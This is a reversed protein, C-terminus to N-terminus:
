NNNASTIELQVIQESAQIVKDKKPHPDINLLGMSYGFVDVVVPERKHILKIQTPEGKGNSVELKVVMQGAWICTVGIACRSDEIDILRLNINQFQIVQAFHLELTETTEEANAAPHQKISQSAIDTTNVTKTSSGACASLTMLLIFILKLM